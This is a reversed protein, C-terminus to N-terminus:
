NPMPHVFGFDCDDCRYIKVNKFYDKDEKIEFKYNDLFKVSEKKECILCHM